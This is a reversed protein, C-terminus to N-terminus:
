PSPFIQPGGKSHIGAASCPISPPTCSPFDRSVLLREETLHSLCTLAFPPFTTPPAFFSPSPFHSRIASGPNTPVVRTLIECDTLVLFLLHLSFWAAFHHSPPPPSPFPIIGFFVRRTDHCHFSFGSFLLPKPPLLSFFSFAVADFVLYDPVGTSISRFSTYSFLQMGIWAHFASLPSSLPFTTSCSTPNLSFFFAFQLFFAM